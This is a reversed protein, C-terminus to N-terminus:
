SVQVSQMRLEFDNHSEQQRTVENEVRAIQMQLQLADEELKAKVEKTAKLESQLCAHM